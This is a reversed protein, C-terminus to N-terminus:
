EVVNAIPCYFMFLEAHRLKPFSRAFAALWAVNVANYTNREYKQDHSYQAPNEQIEVEGAVGKFFIYTYARVQTCCVPVRDIHYL